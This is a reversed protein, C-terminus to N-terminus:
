GQWEQQYSTPPRACYGAVGLFGNLLQHDNPMSSHHHLLCPTALTSPPRRWLSICLPLVGPQRPERWWTGPNQGVSVPGRDEYLCVISPNVFACRRLCLESAQSYPTLSPRHKCEGCTTKGSLRCVALCSNTNCSVPGQTNLRQIHLLILHSALLVLM